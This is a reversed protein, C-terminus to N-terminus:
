RIGLLSLGDQISVYRDLRASRALALYRKGELVLPIQFFDKGGQPYLNEYVTNGKALTLPLIAPKM